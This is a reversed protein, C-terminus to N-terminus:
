EPKSSITIGFYSGLAGLIGGAIAVWAPLTGTVLAGIGAAIFLGGTLLFGVAKKQLANM